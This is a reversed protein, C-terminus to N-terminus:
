HSYCLVLFWQPEIRRWACGVMRRFGPPYENLSPYLRTASRIPEGKTDVPWHLEGEVVRPVVPFNVYYKSVEGRLRWSPIERWDKIDIWVAQHQYAEYISAYDMAEVQWASEISYPAPLWLTPGSKLRGIGSTGLMRMAEPNDPWITQGDKWVAGGNNESRWLAVLAEFERRHTQFHRIMEEDTPLPEFFAMVHEHTGRFDALIRAVSLEGDRTYYGDFTRYLIIWTDIPYRGFPSLTIGTLVTLGIALPKWQRRRKGTLAYLALALATLALLLWVPMLPLTALCATLVLAARRWGQRRRPPAAGAGGDSLAQEDLRNEEQTM